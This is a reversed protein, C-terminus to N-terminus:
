FVHMHKETKSCNIKLGIDKAKEEIKNLLQKINEMSDTTISIDDAYDTDTIYTAPHRRCRRKKLTFKITNYLNLINSKVILYYM